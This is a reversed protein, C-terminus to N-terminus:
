FSGSWLCVCAEKRGQSAPQINLSVKWIVMHPLRPEQYIKDKCLFAFAFCYRLLANCQRTSFTDKNKGMYQIITHKWKSSLQENCLQITKIHCFFVLTEEVMIKQCQQSM